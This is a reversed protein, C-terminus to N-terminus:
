PTWGIAKRLLSLALAAAEYPNDAKVEVSHRVGRTGTFSVLCTKPPM